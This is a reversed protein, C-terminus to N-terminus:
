ALCCSLVTAYPYLKLLCQLCVFFTQISDSLYFIHTEYDINSSQLFQAEIDLLQKPSGVEVLQKIATRRAQGTSEFLADIHGQFLDAWEQMKELAVGEYVADLGTLNAAVAQRADVLAQILDPHPSEHQNAHNPM